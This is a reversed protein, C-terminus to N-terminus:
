GRGTSFRQSSPVFCPVTGQKLQKVLVFTSAQSTCFYKGSFTPFHRMQLAVLVDVCCVDIGERISLKSAKSTCLCLYQCRLLQLAVFVDVSCVDVGERIGIPPSSDRREVLIRCM